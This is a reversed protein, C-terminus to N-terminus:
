LEVVLGENPDYSNEVPLATEIEPLATEIEPLVTKIDPLATKIKPQVAEIEPLATEIELQKFFKFFNDNLWTLVMGLSAM